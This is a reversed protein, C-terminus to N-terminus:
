LRQGVVVVYPRRLLEEVEPAKVADARYPHADGVVQRVAGLERRGRPFAVVARKKRGPLSGRSAASAPPVPSAAGLVARAVSCPAGAGAKSATAGM